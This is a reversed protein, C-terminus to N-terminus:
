SDWSEVPFWLTSVSNMILMRAMYGPTVLLLRSGPKFLYFGLAPVASVRQERCQPVWVCFKFDFCFLLLLLWLSAFTVAPSCMIVSALLGSLSFNLRQWILFLWTGRPETSTLLLTHFVQLSGDWVGSRGLTLCATWGLLHVTLWLTLLLLWCNWLSSM